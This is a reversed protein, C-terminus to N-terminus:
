MEISLFPFLVLTVDVEHYEERAVRGSEREVTKREGREDITVLKGQQYKARMEGDVEDM